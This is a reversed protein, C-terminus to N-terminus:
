LRRRVEVETVQGRESAVPLCVFVRGTGRQRLRGYERMMRSMAYDHQTAHPRKRSFEFWFRGM